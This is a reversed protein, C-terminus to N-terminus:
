EAHESVEKMADGLRNVIHSFSIYEPCVDDCRGCGVCMHFGSRKKFDYVKHLVKYRMRAGHNKRYVVGGAMDSFGDVMCSALVRRREGTKPNDQYFLDQMSFCTCTPCSFNCRGCAICRKDYEDWLKSKAVSFDLDDPISVRTKTETVHAPTVPTETGGQARLLPEWEANKCDLHWGDGDPEISLDYNDSINTGMDVCFCSDFAKKCGMLVFKVNKRRQEYYYDPNAGGRYIEDLRKVAHLDCSRLFIITDRTEPTPETISDETFYFLTQSPPLLLEKFSFRSKEDFVVNEIDTVEAYRVCDTGTFAGGGEFRVPAVVRGTRALERLFANVGGTSLEFGM